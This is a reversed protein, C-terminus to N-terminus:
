SIVKVIVSPVSGILLAVTTIPSVLLVVPLAPPQEKLSISPPCISTCIEFDPYVELVSVM